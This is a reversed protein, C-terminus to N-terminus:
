GYFCPPLARTNGTQSNLGGSRWADDAQTCAVKILGNMDHM